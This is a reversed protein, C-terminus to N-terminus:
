KGARRSKGAKARRAENRNKANQGRVNTNEEAALQSLEPDAQRLRAMESRGEALQSERMQLQDLIQVVELEEADFDAQLAAIQATLAARKSVLERKRREVEQRQALTIAREKNLQTARATGFLVGEPGLYVDTLSMGRPSLRFERSQNSHAMGRSKLLYLARNREGNSEENRLMIWADMLSSIGIDTHDVESSLPTLSTFVTTIQLSKLFDIMRTLALKVDQAPGVAELNTIQDVIVVKPRLETIRKQIVAVHMELGYATPRAAHFFMRGQDEWQQLNLGISAMNRKIQQPSEELAVYFATEGRRCAADAFIAGFSSKGTGAGGTVLISSGRYFGKGALMYDLRDVGSSIRETPAPHDLGLSTIPMVTIGDNDILFPYENTGHFSGRYKVVRLRRTSVQDNVRHDLLIVCDAVYEEMGYRTLSGEGREATIVATVGKEKLWRFLRRLEARLTAEDPLGAFLAELTDLVVRKAKISDIAYALRIFLGELDYEGTQQIESREIYVHDLVLQKRAIMEDLDLGLSSVNQALEAATEEFAMFVGPENHEIVGRALFELAFLTKGSGASGCVLSPRGKPLGGTTVEDFGRIGTPTKPLLDHRSVAPKKPRIM